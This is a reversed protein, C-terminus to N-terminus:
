PRAGRRQRLVTAQQFTTTAGLLHHEAIGIAVLIAAKQGRAPLEVLRFDRQDVGEATMPDRQAQEVAAASGDAAAAARTILGDERLGRASHLPLDADGLLALHDRRFIRMRLYAPSVEFNKSGGGQLRREQLRVLRRRALLVERGHLFEGGVSISRIPVQNVLAAPNSRYKQSDVTMPSIALRFIPLRGAERLFEVRM